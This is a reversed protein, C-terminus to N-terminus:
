WALRENLAVGHQGCLSSVREQWRGDLPQDLPQKHAVREYLMCVVCWPVLLAHLPRAPGRTETRGSCVRCLLVISDLPNCHLYSCAGWV